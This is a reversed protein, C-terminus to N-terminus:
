AFAGATRLSAVQPQLYRGPCATPSLERHTFIRQRPVRYAQALTRVAWELSRLQQPSPRQREFNGLVMVGVNQENHGSVHAGQYRLDRGQWVRGSRDIIYHYGIDAWNRGNTTHAQRVRELHGATTRQDSFWVPDSGEHHITIRSVRTMPNIRATNPGAAAWRARPIAGLVDDASVPPRTRSPAAPVARVVGRDGRPRSVADPWAAGPRRVASPGAGCGGLLLGLSALMMERRSLKM